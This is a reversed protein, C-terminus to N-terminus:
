LAFWTLAGAVPDVAVLKFIPTLLQPLIPPNPYSYKEHINEGEQMEQFQKAWRPIASNTQGDARPKIVKAVYHVSPVAFLLALALVFGLRARSRGAPATVPEGPDPAPM